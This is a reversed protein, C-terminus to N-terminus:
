MTYSKSWLERLTFQLIHVINPVLNATYRAYFQRSMELLQASAILQINFSSYGHQLQMIYTRSWLVCQTFQRNHATNPVWIETINENFQRSINMLLASVNLQINFDSYASSYNCQMHGPGWNMYRLSSSTRQMQCWTQLIVRTANELYRCYCRLYTCIFISTQIHPATFANYIVPVVTWM